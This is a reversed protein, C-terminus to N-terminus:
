YDAPLFLQFSFFVSYDFNLRFESLSDPIEMEVTKRESGSMDVLLDNTVEVTENFTQASLGAGLLVCTCALIYRKVNIM